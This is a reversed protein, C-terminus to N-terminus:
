ARFPWMAKYEGHSLVKAGLRTKYPLGDSYGFDWFAFGKEELYRATLILQVTGASPEEHYGSYSTYVRGIQVGIDGAALKGDKYLSFSVPLVPGGGNKLEKFYIQFDPTLGADGHIEVCRKMVADFDTDFCLRYRGGFRALHRRITKGTHLRDFFLVARNSPIVPKIIVPNRSDGHISVYFGELILGRTFDLGGQREEQNVIRILRRPDEGPFEIEMQKTFDELAPNLLGKKHYARGRNGFAYVHKSDVRIANTYDQIALDFLGKKYYVLGRSNLADAYGPNIGIADTYDRMALDWLEKKYYVDGRKNFADAYMPDIGIASTYDQIALDWLQKKYYINGRHNFTKALNYNIGPGGNEKYQQIAGTFDQIALDWLGKRDYVYGRNYLADTYNPEIRLAGSLDAIALDFLGKDKYVCGRNNLSGTHKPNIELAKGYAALAEDLKGAAHFDHGKNFFYGATHTEM